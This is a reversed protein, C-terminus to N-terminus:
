KVVRVRVIRIDDVPRAYDDVMVKQIRDVVDMGELVEGFVTYQGDLYPAGGEKFYVQRQEPTFKYKGASLTDLRREYYDMEYGAYRTGTVIYFQSGSSELKPNTSEDERAAAVAGRKHYYLPFRIEAPIKSQGVQYNGLSEGPQATKSHPDGTQIMFNKIVRHFLMGDYDKHRVLKLFNDRHLPTENYLAIRINGMTTEILVQHRVTDVIVSDTLASDAPATTARASLAFMSFLLLAVYVMGHRAKTIQTKNKM